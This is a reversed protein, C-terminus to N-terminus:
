SLILIGGILSALGFVLILIDFGTKGMMKIFVRSKVNNFVFPFRLVLAALCFAGYIVLFIGLFQM